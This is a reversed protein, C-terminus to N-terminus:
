PLSTSTCGASAGPHAALPLRQQETQAWYGALCVLPPASLQLTDLTPYAATQRLVRDKKM